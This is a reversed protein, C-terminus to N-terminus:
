TPELGVEPVLGRANVGYILGDIEMKDVGLGPSQHGAFNELVRMARHRSEVSAHGYHLVLTKDQHGIISGITALDQGAQLMRTVATDRADHTVSGGAIDQGYPVGIAQCCERMIEYYDTVKGGARTFM